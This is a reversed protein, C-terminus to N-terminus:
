FFLHFHTIIGALFFSIYRSFSQTLKAFDGVLFDPTSVFIVSTIIMFVNFFVIMATVFIPYFQNRPMRNKSQSLSFLSGTVIGLFPLYIDFLLKNIKVLGGAPINATASSFNILMLFVLSVFSVYWIISNIGIWFKITKQTM